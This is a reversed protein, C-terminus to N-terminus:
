GDLVESAVIVVDEWTAATVNLDKWWPRAERNFLSRFHEEDVDLMWRIGASVVCKDNLVVNSAQMATMKYVVM